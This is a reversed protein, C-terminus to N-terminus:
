SSTCHRLDAVALATSSSPFCGEIVFLYLHNEHLAPNDSVGLHRKRDGDFDIAFAVKTHVRSFLDVMDEVELESIILQNYSYERSPITAARVRVRKKPPDASTMFDLPPFLSLLFTLPLRSSTFQLPPLSNALINLPISELQVARQFILLSFDRLPPPSTGAKGTHAIASLRSIM